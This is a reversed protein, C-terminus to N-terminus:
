DEALVYLNPIEGNNLINNIDEVFAENTIQTDSFLFVTQKQDVGCGMFLKSKMDDRWANFDYNKSMEISFIEYNAIFTALETLSKRGSGGVGVLLGHGYETTIVRHIKVIHEIASVFLVLNMKKSQHMHNYDALSNETADKVKKRDYLECYVDSYPKKTTDDDPFVLPVFSAFLLPEVEVVKNWEKKFKEKIVDKLLDDFKARDQDNILRDQFVRLCEHAWLKIMDVDSRISRPSSKAIGQFVKSVDRLNYTYHSKAPTPRFKESIAKYIFITNNVLSDRMGQIAKSFSPNNNKLFFWEMVNTFIYSLSDNSYPEIYIVNFHRVYRATISNRGGGPPGMATVFKIQQLFRFEKENTDIEYWGGYDM